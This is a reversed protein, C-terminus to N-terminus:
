DRCDGCTCEMNDLRDLHFCATRLDDLFRDERRYSAEFERELRAERWGKGDEERALALFAVSGTVIFPALDPRRRDYCKSRQHGVDAAPASPTIVRFVVPCRGHCATRSPTRIM